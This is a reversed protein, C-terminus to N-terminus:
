SSECRERDVGSDLWPCIFRPKCRTRRPDVQTHIYTDNMSGVGVTGQLSGAIGPHEGVTYKASRFALAKPPLPRFRFTSKLTTREMTESALFCERLCCPRCCPQISRAIRIATDSATTTDSGDVSVHLRVMPQIGASRILSRVSSVLYFMYNSPWLICDTYLRSAGEDM